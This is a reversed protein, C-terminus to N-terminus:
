DTREDKVEGHKGRELNELLELLSEEESDDFDPPIPENWMDEFCM